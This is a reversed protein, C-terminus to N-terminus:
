RVVNLFLKVATLLWVEAWTRSYFVIDAELALESLGERGPKEIEVSITAGTMSQRLQRM